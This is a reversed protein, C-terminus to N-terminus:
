FTVYIGYPIKIQLSVKGKSGGHPYRVPWPCVSVCAPCVCVCLCSASVCVCVLLVCVCVSVSVSVTSWIVTNLRVDNTYSVCLCVNSDRERESM